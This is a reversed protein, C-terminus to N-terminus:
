RLGRCDVIINQRRVMLTYTDFLIPSGLLKYQSNISMIYLSNRRTYTLAIDRKPLLAAFSLKFLNAPTQKFPPAHPNIRYDAYLRVLMNFKEQIIQPNYVFIILQYQM